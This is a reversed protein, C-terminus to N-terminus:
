SYMFVTYISSYLINNSKFNLCLIIIYQKELVFIYILILTFSFYIIKNLLKISSYNKKVLKHLVYKKTISLLIIKLLSLSVCLILTVIKFKKFEFM